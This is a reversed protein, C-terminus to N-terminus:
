ILNRKIFEEHLPHALIYADPHAHDKDDRLKFFHKWDSVFGTMVLETKLANPLVQRAQQPKWEEKLLRFYSKEANELAYLFSDYNSSKNIYGLSADFDTNNPDAGVRYGLGDHWYAIGEPINLWSPIIFTIENGFKDKSYNCYRTSEQAFSFVRHRCFSQSGIRDMTFKVTIRKEHYETPECLYKLDDLWGNEVLVRYNTTIVVSGEIAGLFGETIGRGPQIQVAKSYPNERYKNWLYYARSISDYETTFDYRLYVTGHELVSFHQKNKLMEIFKKYSDETIKNESKWCVRGVKEIQKYMGEEGTPQELIEFSSKILKM